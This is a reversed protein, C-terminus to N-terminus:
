KNMKMLYQPIIKKTPEQFLRFLNMLMDRMTNTCGLKVELWVNVMVEVEVDIVADWSKDAFQFSRGYGLQTKLLRMSTAAKITDRMM